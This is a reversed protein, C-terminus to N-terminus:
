EGTRIRAVSIVPSDSSVTARTVVPHRAAPSRHCITWWGVDNGEVVWVGLPGARVFVVLANGRPAV